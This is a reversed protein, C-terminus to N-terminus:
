FRAVYTQVERYNHLFLDNDAVAREVLPKLLALESINVVAHVSNRFAQMTDFTTFADGLLVITAHRRQDVAMNQLAHLSVNDELKEAAFLEEILVVHYRTQSFCVSFGEHESVTHVKYKLARLAKQAALNVAPQTCAILAPKDATAVFTEEFAEPM